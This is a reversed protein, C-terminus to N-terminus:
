GPVDRDVHAVPPRAAGQEVGAHVRQREVHAVLQAVAEEGERPLRERVRVRLQEEHVRRARGHPQHHCRPEVVGFYEHRKLKFTIFHTLLNKSRNYKNCKM